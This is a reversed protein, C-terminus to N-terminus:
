LFEIEDEVAGPPLAFDPLQVLTLRFPETVPLFYIEYRDPALNLM